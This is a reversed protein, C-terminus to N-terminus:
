SKNPTPCLKKKHKKNIVHEHDDPVNIEKVRCIKGCKNCIFEVTMLLTDTNNKDIKNFDDPTTATVSFECCQSVTITPPTFREMNMPGMPMFM